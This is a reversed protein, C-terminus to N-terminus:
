CHWDFRGRCPCAYKRILKQISGLVLPEADIQLHIGIRIFSSLFDGDDLCERELGVSQALSKVEAFSESTNM